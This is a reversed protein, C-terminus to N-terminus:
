TIGVQLFLATNKEHNKMYHGLSGQAIFYGLCWSQSMSSPSM